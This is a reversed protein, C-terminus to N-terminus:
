IESFNLVSGDFVHQITKGAANIILDQPCYYVKPSVELKRLISYLKENEKKNNGFIGIVGDIISTLGHNFLVEFERVSLIMGPYDNSIRMILEDPLVITYINSNKMKQILDGVETALLSVDKVNIDPIVMVEGLISKGNQPFIGQFPEVTNHIMVQTYSVTEKIHSPCGGCIPEANPFLTIFSESFCNDAAHKIMKQLLSFGNENDLYDQQRYDTIAHIFSQQNAFMEIKQLQVPFLYTKEQPLYIYDEIRVLGHCALFFLLSLNWNRNLAGRNRREINTFSSPAASTDLELVNINASATKKMSFFRDAMSEATLVRRQFISRQFDVPQDKYLCTISISPLGDRGSRGVEQYFESLNAPLSPHIITRVNPKDVGMGFASTAVMIEISDNNWSEIIKERDDDNTDGTYCAVSNLGAAILKNKWSEASDPAIEYLILPKPMLKCYRLIKEEWKNSTNEINVYYRPESRLADCRLTIWKGDNSFLNRLKEVANETLTASLLVTRVHIGNTNSLKNRFVSMVQFDPRFSTGWDQVIHAEDIILYDIRGQANLDYLIQQLENNKAISEPSTILLNVSGSRLAVYDHQKQDNNHSSGCLSIINDKNAGKITALAARYQDRGLAVTPVILITLGPGHFAAMQTILSKGAGTPFSFLLTYDEPMHMMTHVAIKQEFSKYQSFGTADTLLQDGHSSNVKFNKIPEKLYVKSLFATLPEEPIGISANITRTREVRLEYETGKRKVIEAISSPVDIKGVYLIYDRLTSLFNGTNHRNSSYNHYQILFRKAVRLKQLEMPSGSLWNEQIADEIKEFSSEFSIKNDLYSQVLEHIRM